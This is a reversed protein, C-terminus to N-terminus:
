TSRVLSQMVTRVREPTTYKERWIVTADTIWPHSARKGSTPTPLLRAIEDWKEKIDVLSTTTPSFEISTYGSRTRKISVGINNLMSETSEDITFDGDIVQRNNGYFGSSCTQYGKDNMIELADRVQTELQERFAGMVVERDTPYPNIRVREDLEKDIEDHVQKRLASMQRTLEEKTLMSQSTELNKSM